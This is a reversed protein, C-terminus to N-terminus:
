KRMTDSRWINHITLSRWMMLFANLRRLLLRTKAHESCDTCQDNIPPSHSVHIAAQPCHIYHRVTTTTMSSYILWNILHLKYTFPRIIYLKYIAALFLCLSLSNSNCGLSIWVIYHIRIAILVCFLTTSSTKVILNLNKLYIFSLNIIIFFNFNSWNPDIIQIRYGSISTIVPLLPLVAVTLTSGSTFNGSVSSTSWM